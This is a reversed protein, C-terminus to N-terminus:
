QDIPSRPHSLLSLTHLYKALLTFTCLLNFGFLTLFFASAVWPLQTLANFEATIRPIATAVILQDQVDAYWDSADYEALVCGLFVAALFSLCVLAFLFIDLMLSLFIIWFRLRSVELPAQMAGQGQSPAAKAKVSPTPSTASRDAKTAVAAAHTDVSSHISSSSPAVNQGPQGATLHPHKDTM